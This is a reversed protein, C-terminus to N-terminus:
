RTLARRSCELRSSVAGAMRSPSPAGCRLSSSLCCSWEGSVAALDGLCAAYASRVHPPCAFFYSDARGAARSLPPVLAPAVGLFRDPGDSFRPAAVDDVVAWGDRSLVGDGINAAAHPLEEVLRILAMYVRM